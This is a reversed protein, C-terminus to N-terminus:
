RAVFCNVTGLPESIHERNRLKVDEGRREEDRIWEEDGIRKGDGM